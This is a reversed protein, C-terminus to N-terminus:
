ALARGHESEIATVMEYGSLALAVNLPVSAIILARGFGPSAALAIIVIANILGAGILLLWTRVVVPRKPHDPSLCDRLAQYPFWLQVVPIFYFGIGWGPSHKAPYGLRRATTAAHYQWVFFIVEAALSLPALLLSVAITPPHPLPQGSLGQSVQDFNVRITHFYNAWQHATAWDALGRMIAVLPFVIVAARVWPLIRKESRYSPTPDLGPFAYSSGGSTHSTWISGDWWRWLAPNTPDPYWGPGPDAMPVRYPVGPYSLSGPAEPASTLGLSLRPSDHDTTGPSVPPNGTTELIGTRGAPGTFSEPPRRRCTPTRRTGASRLWSCGSSV